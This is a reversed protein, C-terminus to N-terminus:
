CPYGERLVGDNNYVHFAGAVHFCSSQCGEEQERGKPCSLIEGLVKGDQHAFLRGYIDEHELESGCYPCEMKHRAKQIIIRVVPHM